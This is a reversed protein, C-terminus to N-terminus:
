LPSLTVALVVESTLLKLLFLLSTFLLKIYLFLLLLFLFLVIDSSCPEAALFCLVDKVGGVETLM